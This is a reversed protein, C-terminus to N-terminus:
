VELVDFTVQLMRLLACAVLVAGVLKLLIM